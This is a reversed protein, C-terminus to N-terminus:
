GGMPWERAVRDGKRQLFSGAPRYLNAGEGLRVKRGTAAGQIDAEKVAIM